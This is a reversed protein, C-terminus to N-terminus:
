TTLFFVCAIYPDGYDVLVPAVMERAREAGLERDVAERFSRGPRSDYREGGLPRWPMEVVADGGAAGLGGGPPCVAEVRLQPCSRGLEGRLTALSFWAEACLVVPEGTAGAVQSPDIAWLASESRAAVSPVVLTAAGADIALRVCTQLRDRANNLGGCISARDPGCRSSCHLSLNPRWSTRSCLAELTAAGPPSQEAADATSPRDDTEPAHSAATPRPGAPTSAFPWAKLKDTLIQTARVSAGSPANLITYVLLIGFFATLIKFRHLLARRLAAGATLM